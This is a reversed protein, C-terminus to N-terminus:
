WFKSIFEFFNCCDEIQWIKKMYAKLFCTPLNQKFENAFLNGRYTGEGEFVRSVCEPQFRWGSRSTPGKIDKSVLHKTTLVTRVRLILIHNQMNSDFNRKEAKWRFPSFLVWVVAEESGPIAGFYLIWNKLCLHQSNQKYCCNKSTPVIKVFYLGRGKIKEM